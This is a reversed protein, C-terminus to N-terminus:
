KNKLSYKIFNLGNKSLAGLHSMNFQDSPFNQPTHPPESSMFSSTTSSMPAGLHGKYYRCAPSPCSQVVEVIFDKEMGLNERGITYSDM